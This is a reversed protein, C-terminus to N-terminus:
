FEGPGPGFHEGNALTELVPGVGDVGAFPISNGSWNIEIGQQQLAFFIVL